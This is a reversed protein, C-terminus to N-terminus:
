EELLRVPLILYVFNDGEVPKIVCPSVSTTFELIVEEDGINRLAEIFYKSNFAIKLEEGELQIPIEEHVQGIEANSTIVLQEQLIEMKILNNKGERALLAARECSDLLLETSIRVRSKHEEPIIQIYNIFEGELLSSIIRTGEWQFLIQNNARSIGVEEGEGQLLKGIENLIRGPIVEKIGHAQTNVTRGRRLALRYGDLAVLRIEGESAEMLAGTLVPRTEDVAVSFITQRIMDRLLDQSVQIQVEDDVEPLEPFELANQGQIIFRSSECHIRTRYDEGVKLEVQGNPLKRVLEVIIRSSLVVSGEQIIEGEVQTEIGIELDTAILKIQGDLAQILIGELIPLTTRGSVAKQVRLLGELLNAKTCVINM